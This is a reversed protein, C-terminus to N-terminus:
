SQQTARSITFHLLAAINQAADPQVPRSLALPNTASFCWPEFPSNPRASTVPSQPAIGRLYWHNLSDALFHFRAVLEEGPVNRNVADSLIGLASEVAQLMNCRRLILRHLLVADGSASGDAFIGATVIPPRYLDVFRGRQM